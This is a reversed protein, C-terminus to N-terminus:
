SQDKTAWKPMSIGRIGGGYAPWEELERCAKLRTLARDVKRGGSEWVDPEPYYCQVPFPRANEVCIWVFHPYENLEAQIRKLRSYWVCQFDYHLNGIKRQFADESADPGTKIDPIVPMNHLDLGYADLLAKCKVGLLEAEVVSERETCASLIASAEKDRTISDSMWQISDAQAQTLIPLTQQSRWEKGEKTAFTMARGTSDKAPKIAFMHLLDKGELLRAHTLTGTAYRVIDEEDDEEAQQLLADQYHAPSRLIHKLTSYNVGDLENYEERTM